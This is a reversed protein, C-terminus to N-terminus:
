PTKSSTPSTSISSKQGKTKGTRPRNHATFSQDLSDLYRLLHGLSHHTWPSPHLDHISQFKVTEHFSSAFDSISWIFPLRQLWKISPFISLCRPNNQQYSSASSFFVFFAVLGDRYSPRVCHQLQRYSAQCLNGAYSTARATHLRM